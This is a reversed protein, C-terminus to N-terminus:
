RCNLLTEGVLSAGYQCFLGHLFCVLLCNHVLVENWDLINIFCVPFDDKHTQMAGVTYILEARNGVHPPTKCHYLQSTVVTNYM